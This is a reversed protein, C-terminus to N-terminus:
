RWRSQCPIPGTFSLCKEKDQASILCIIRPVLADTEAFAKQTLNDDFLIFVVCVLATTVIAIKV